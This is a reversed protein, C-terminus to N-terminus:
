KRRDSSSSESEKKRDAKKTSTETKAKKTERRSSSSVGTEKSRTKTSNTRANQGSSPNTMSRNTVTTSSSSRRGTTVNRDSSPNTVSRNTVTTSRKTTVTTNRGSNGSSKIQPDSRRVSSNGSSNVSSRRYEDPHNKAFMKEGDKRQNPKSYTAKYTGVEIRHNVDRSYSRRGVYYFDNWRTYRHHNWRRYNSYYDHYWNYHYGYYYHWYYPRWPHWYSPYYGWHWSSHWVTYTPLYIFRVLPWAGIEVTTTKVYTINQGNFARDNGAYGPNPTELSNPDDFIPEIIYDKGYLEEDGILQVMVQGNDFRQVTFVAVDQNERESVADQLVITHVDGDINDIIRIYDVRNDGNLDLNNINSKPDNLSREFDELTRSERFLKMVAYLNLNDGPLGLYEEQSNQAMITTGAAFLAVLIATSVFKKM